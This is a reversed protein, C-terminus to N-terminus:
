AAVARRGSIASAVIVGRDGQCRSCPWPDERAELKIPRGRPAGILASSFLVGGFMSCSCCTSEATDRAAALIQSACVRRRALLKSQDRLFAVRRSRRNQAGPH